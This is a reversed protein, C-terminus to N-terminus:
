LILKRTQLFIPLFGGIKLNSYGPHEKDARPVVFAFVLLFLVTLVAAPMFNAQHMGIQQGTGIESSVSVSCIPPAEVRINTRNTTRETNPPMGAMSKLVSKIPCSSLLLCFVAAILLIFRRGPNMHIILQRSM